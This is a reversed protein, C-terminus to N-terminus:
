CDIALWNATKEVRNCAKAYEYKGSDLRQAHKDMVQETSPSWKVRKSISINQRYIQPFILAHAHLTHWTERGEGEFAQTTM